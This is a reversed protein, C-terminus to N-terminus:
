VDLVVLAEWGRSSQEVKFRHMTVAKVDVVLDHKRPDIEEGCAEALLLFRDCRRTIRVDSVRLLLRQADKHFVLEQLLDFLLMEIEDADCQLPRRESRGITDLDSVMANMVAEASAVFMEEVTAGWAEFAVDATAIDELYRYPM